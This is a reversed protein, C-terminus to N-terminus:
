FELHAHPRVWLTMRTCLKYVFASQGAPQNTPKTWSSDAESMGTHCLTLNCPVVTACELVHLGMQRRDRNECFTVCLFAQESKLCPFSFHDVTFTWEAVSAMASCCSLNISFHLLTGPYPRGQYGLLKSSIFTGSSWHADHLMHAWEPWRRLIWGWGPGSLKDWNM